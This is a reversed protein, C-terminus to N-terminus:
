LRVGLRVIDELLGENVSSKDRLSDNNTGQELAGRTAASSPQEYNSTWFPLKFAGFLNVDSDSGIGQARSNDARHMQGESSQAQMQDQAGGLLQQPQLANSLGQVASSSANFEQLSPHSILFSQSQVQDNLSQCGVNGGTQVEQGAQLTLSKSATSAHDTQAGSQIQATLDFSSCSATPTVPNPSTLPGFSSIPPQQHAAAAAGPGGNERTDALPPSTPPYVDSSSNRSNTTPPNVHTHTGEYTTIVLGTDEASREVRKRVPCKQNTCRYYSRPHPSNKVAKQGYKRWKYGDEMVDIKSRTQIAYRPERVRKPGGKKGAKISSSLKKLEPSSEIEENKDMAPDPTKRKPTSSASQDVLTALKSADDDDPGEDSSSGSSFSSNPTSPLPTSAGGSAAALPLRAPSPSRCGHTTASPSPSSTPVPSLSGTPSPSQFQTNMQLSPSSSSFQMQFDAIDGLQQQQQQQQQQHHGLDQPPTSVQNRGRPSPVSSTPKTLLLEQQIAEYNNLVQSNNDGPFNGIRPTIQNEGFCSWAATNALEAISSDSSLLFDDKQLQQQLLFGNSTAAFAASGSFGGSVLPDTANMSILSQWQATPSPVVLPHLLDDTFTSFFGQQQQQMMLADVDRLPPEVFLHQQSVAVDDEGSFSGMLKELELSEDGGGM